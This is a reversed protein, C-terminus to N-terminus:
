PIRDSLDFAAISTVTPKLKFIQVRSLRYQTFIPQSHIRAMTRVSAEIDEEKTVTCHPVWKGPHYFSDSQIKRSLLIAHFNEHIDLLSKTVVPSLFVVNKVGPFIGLSLFSVTFPATKAVFAEVAKILRAKGVKEFTALSIHPPNETFSGPCGASIFASKLRLADTEDILLTVAYEM